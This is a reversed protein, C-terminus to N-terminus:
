FSLFARVLLVFASSCISTYTFAMGTVRFKYNEQVKSVGFAHICRGILLIACVFHVIIIQTNAQEILIALILAIPVYESFNSHVRMARLMRENGADGVGIKLQRRLSLTRVSLGVYFLALFAAYISVIM